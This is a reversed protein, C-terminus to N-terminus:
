GSHEIPQAQWLFARWRVAVLATLVFGLVAYITATARFGIREILAGAVLLGFPLGYVALMRVGMIRGRLRQGSARLLIVAHCVMALSQTVGALMLVLIGGSMSQMQAFGLLLTQWILASVIMLRPLRAEAGSRTLALSGILAGFSLSAVLYGLGTQDVHYIERAVYPLLGNTIPFATLNFLFALWVLALLSPTNWVHVIGERLDRWPSTSITAPAAPSAIADAKAPVTCWTLLASIVYFTAVVVYAPGIGFAAFLGAGALAGAIRASDSTTRSISMASTLRDFPMTEAILAGRLGMDSPRVLGTMAALILALLPHLAGAFALIM